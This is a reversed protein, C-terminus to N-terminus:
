YKITLNFLLLAFSQRYIKVCGSVGSKSVKLKRYTYGEYSVCAGGMSTLGFELEMAATM